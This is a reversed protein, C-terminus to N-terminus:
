SQSFRIEVSFGASIFIAGDGTNRQTFHRYNEFFNNKDQIM